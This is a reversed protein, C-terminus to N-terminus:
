YVSLNLSETAALEFGRPHSKYSCKVHTALQRLKANALSLSCIPARSYAPDYVLNKFFYVHACEKCLHILNPSARIDVMLEFSPM